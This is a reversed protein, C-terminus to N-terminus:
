HLFSKQGAGCLPMVLRVLQTRGSKTWRFPAKANRDSKTGTRTLIRSLPCLVTILVAARPFVQRRWAVFNVCREVMFDAHRLQM